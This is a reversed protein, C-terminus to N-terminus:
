YGKIGIITSHPASYSLSPTPNDSSILSSKQIDFFRLFDFEKKSFVKSFSNTPTLSVVVYRLVKLQVRGKISGARSNYGCRKGELTSYYGGEILVRM